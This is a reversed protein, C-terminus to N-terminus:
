PACQPGGLNTDLKHRADTHTYGASMCAKTRTGCADWGILLPEEESALGELIVVGDAFIANLSLASDVQGEGQKTTALLLLLLVVCCGLLNLVLVLLNTGIPMM